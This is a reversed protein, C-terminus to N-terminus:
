LSKKVLIPNGTGESVSRTFRKCCAITLEAARPYWLGPTPIDSCIWQLITELTICFFDVKVLISQTGIEKPMTIALIVLVALIRMTITFRM